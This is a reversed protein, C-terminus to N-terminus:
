MVFKGSWRGTSYAGYQALALRKLPESLGEFDKVLLHMGQLEELYGFGFLHELGADDVQRCGLLSLFTLRPLRRLHKIGDNTIGYCDKINLATLRTLRGVHELGADTLNVANRVDLSELRTLGSALHELVADTVADFLDGLNLSKLSQIGALPLLASSIDGDENIGCCQRLSLTELRSLSTLALVGRAGFDDCGELDLANLSLIQAVCELGDDTIGCGLLALSSLSSLHALSAFGQGTLSSFFMISLSDLSSLGVLARVGDCTLTCNSSEGLLLATLATCSGIVNLSDNDLGACMTMDLRQLATLGRLPALQVCGLAVAGEQAPEVCLGSVDLERLATLGAIAPLFGAGLAKCYGVNLAQLRPLAALLPVLGAATIAELHELDLSTLGSCAAAAALAEDGAEYNHALSLTQLRPFPPLHAGSFARGRSLDLGTLGTLAALAAVGADTVLQCGQLSLQRLRPLGRAIARCSADTVSRLYGLNLATLASLAGAALQQVSADRLAHCGELSLERLGTLAAIAACAADSLNRAHTLDLATTRAPLLALDADSVGSKTFIFTTANPFRQVITPLDPLHRRKVQAIFRLLLRQKANYRLIYHYRPSERLLRPQQSGWSAAPCSPLGFM